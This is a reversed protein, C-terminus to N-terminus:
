WGRLVTGKFDKESIFGIYRSDMANGRNDGLVFYSRDPVKVPGFNDINWPENFVKQIYADIMGEPVIFRQYTIGQRGILQDPFTILVSDDAIPLASYAKLHMGLTDKPFILYSHSLTFLSDVPRGNVFLDGNKIEVTDGAMGCIRSIWITSGPQSTNRFAIFDFLRPKKMTSTFVVHNAPITPANANSNFSLIQLVYTLRLAIVLAIGTIIIVLIAILSRWFRKNAPM